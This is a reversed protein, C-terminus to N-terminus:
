VFNFSGAFSLILSAIFCAPGDIVIVESVLARAKPKPPRLEKVARRLKQTNAPTQM